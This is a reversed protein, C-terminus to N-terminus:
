SPLLVFFCLEMSSKMEQALNRTSLPITCSFLSAAQPYLAPPSKTAEAILEQGSKNRAAIKFTCKASQIQTINTENPRLAYNEYEQHVYLTAETKGIRIHIIM